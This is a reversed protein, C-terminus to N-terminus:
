HLCTYSICMAHQVPTVCGHYSNLADRVNTGKRSFIPIYYVTDVVVFVANVNCLKKIYNEYMYYGVTKSVGQM